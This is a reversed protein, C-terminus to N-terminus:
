SSFPQSRLPSSRVCRMAPDLSVYEVKVWAQGKELKQDLKVDKELLFHGKGSTIDPSIAAPPRQILTIRSQTSPITPVAPMDKDDNDDSTLSLTCVDDALPSLPPSPPLFANHPLPPLAFAGHM